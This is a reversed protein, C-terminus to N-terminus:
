ARGGVLIFAVGGCSLCFASAAPEPMAVYVVFIATAAVTLFAAIAGQALRDDNMTTEQQPM